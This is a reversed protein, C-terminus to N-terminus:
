KVAEIFTHPMENTLCITSNNNWKLEIGTFLYSGIYHPVEANGFLKVEINIYEANPASKHMGTITISQLSPDIIKKNGDLETIITQVTSSNFGNLYAKERTQLKRVDVDYTYYAVNNTAPSSNNPDDYKQYDTSDEEIQEGEALSNVNEKKPAETEAELWEGCHKCKKSVELIEEGCIDCNKKKEEMNLPLLSAHLPAKCVPCDANNKDVIEGCISCRILYESIKEKCHTCFESELLTQEGCVPCAIYSKKPNEEKLWEGCHKCKKAVALIEEGCYPCRKTEEETKTAPNVFHSIINQVSQLPSDAPSSTPNESVAFVLKVKTYYRIHLYILLATMILFGILFAKSEIKFIALELFQPAFILITAFLTAANLKNSSCTKRHYLGYIAYGALLAILFRDFIIIEKYLFLMEWQESSLNFKNLDSSVIAWFDDKAPIIKLYTILSSIVVWLQYIPLGVLVGVSQEKLSPYRSIFNQKLIKYTFVAVAIAIIYLILVM